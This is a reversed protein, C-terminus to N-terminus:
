VCFPPTRWQCYRLYETYNDEELHLESMIHGGCNYLNRIGKITLWMQSDLELDEQKLIEHKLLANLAYGSNAACIVTGQIEIQERDILHLYYDIVQPSGGRFVNWAFQLNEKDGIIDLIMNLTEIDVIATSSNMVTYDVIISNRFVDEGIIDILEDVPRGSSIYQGISYIVNPSCEIFIDRLIDLNSNDIAHSVLINTQHPSQKNLWNLIYPKSHNYAKFSGYRMITRVVDIELDLEDYMGRYLKRHADLVVYMDIEGKILESRMEALRYHEPWCNRVLEIAKLKRSELLSWISLVTDTKGFTMIIQKLIDLDYNVNIMEEVLEVGYVNGRVLTKWRKCVRSLIWRTLNPHKYEMMRVIKDKMLDYLAM